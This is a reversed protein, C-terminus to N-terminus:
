RWCAAAKSIRSSRTRVFRDPGGPRTASSGASPGGWARTWVNATTCQQARESPALEPHGALVDRRIVTLQDVIMHKHHRRSSEAVQRSGHRRSGAGGGTQWAELEPTSAEFARAFSRFDGRRPGQDGGQTSRSGRGRGDESRRRSPAANANGAAHVAGATPPAFGDKIPVGALVKNHFTEITAVFDGGPLGDGTPFRGYFDGDLANDAVDHIGRDNTGSDIVVEYNGGRMSHGKNFVVSVVVPDTPIGDSSVNISTPLILAPPHVKSSLPTASIHYFASNTVSALDMGSLNDKYTVTLTGDTRDFRLATIM